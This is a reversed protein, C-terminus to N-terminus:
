RAAKRLAKLDTKYMRVADAISKATIVDIAKYGEGKYFYVMYLQPDKVARGDRDEVLASIRLSYGDSQPIKAEVCAPASRGDGGEGCDNVEWSVKEGNGAFTDKIWLEFAKNPLGKELMSAKTNKLTDILKSDQSQAIPCSLVTSFFVIVLVALSKM